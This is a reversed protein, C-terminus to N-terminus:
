AGEFNFAIVIFRLLYVTRLPVYDREEVSGAAVSALPPGLLAPAASDPSRPPDKPLNQQEAMPSNIDRALQCCERRTYVSPELASNCVLSALQTHSLSPGQLLVWSPLLQRRRTHDQPARPSFRSPCLSVCGDSPPRHSPLLVPCEGPAGAAARTGLQESMGPSPQSLGSLCWQPCM